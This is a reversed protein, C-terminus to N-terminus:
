PDFGLVGSEYKTHVNGLKVESVCVCVDGLQKYHCGDRGQSENAVKVAETEQIDNDVIIDELPYQARDCPITINM